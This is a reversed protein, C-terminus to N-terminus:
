LISVLKFYLILNPLTAFKVVASYKKNMRDDCLLLVFILRLYVACNSFSIEGGTEGVYFFNMVYFKLKVSRYVFM